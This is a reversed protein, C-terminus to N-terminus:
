GAALGSSSSTSQSSQPYRPTGSKGIKRYLRRKHWRVTETSIFLAAAIASNKYGQVSLELIRQEQPTLGNEDKNSSCDKLLKLLLGSIVRRPAWVEGDLIALVARRLLKPSFRRPLVGRCGLRLMKASAELNDIELTAVVHTESGHNTLRVLDARVLQDIFEHRAILVSANLRQCVTLVTERDESCRVLTLGVARSVSDILLKRNSLIDGCLVVSFRPAAPLLGSKV